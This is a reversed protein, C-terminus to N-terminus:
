MSGRSESCLFDEAYLQGHLRQARRKSFRVGMRGLRIKVNWNVKRKIDHKVRCHEELYEKDGTQKYRLLYTGNHIVLIKVECKKRRRYM